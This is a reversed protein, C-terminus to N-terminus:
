RGPEGDEVGAGHLAEALARLGSRIRSKVTGLPRDLMAAVEEYTLDGFYALAIPERQRAPLTGLAQALQDHLDQRAGDEEVHAYTPARQAAVREERARRATERRLHDLARSRSTATLYSSLTGRAPDYRDPHEWLLIFTEQVVDDASGDLGMSRALGSLRRAHLRFAQEVEGSDGDGREM